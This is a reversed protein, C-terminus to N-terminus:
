RDRNDLKKEETNSLTLDSVSVTSKLHAEVLANETKINQYLEILKNLDAANNRLSESSAIDKFRHFYRHTDIIANIVAYDQATNSTETIVSLAESIHKGVTTYPDNEHEPEFKEKLKFIIAKALEPHKKIGELLDSPNTITIREYGYKIPEYQNIPLVKYLSRFFYKDKCDNTWLLNISSEKYNSVHLDTLNLDPLADKLKSELASRIQEEMSVEIPTQSTVDITKECTFISIPNLM